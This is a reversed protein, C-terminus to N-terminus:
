EALIEVNARPVTVRQGTDLTVELVRVKAESEIKQLQVPLASVAGLRGFWPTRIVRVRTGIELGTAAAEVQVAAGGPRAVVVEPRLVGARIQTTGNISATEGALKQFLAFTKEAMPIKGFGETVVLSLPIDEHGTIAVGIEYGLYEHLDRDLVGGSVLGVVGVEGARQLADATVLAGGVLIRGRDGDLIQRATLTDTPKKVAIRLTGCGEGGIGFIGQILAAPTEVVVGERPLVETVTGSIYAKVAVPAAPERITVQGTVSSIHEITGTAPSQCQGRFLGFFASYRAIVEGERVSDGVSKVMVEDIESPEINLQNSVAVLHPRGPIFAQAVITEPEVRMGREVLVEGKLPLRRAKRIITGESVTLGPLYADSM